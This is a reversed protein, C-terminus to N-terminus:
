GRAEMQMAPYPRLPPLERREPALTREYCDALARAVRRWTYAHRARALGAEGMQHALAPHRKLIALKDALAEPDNPPVLYGTENDLVTSKIGGVNAGIVPRACAMAEVPTIGFPEYWPTTVFVDCAAYHLPLV